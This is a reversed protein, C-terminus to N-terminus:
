RRREALHDALIMEQALLAHQAAHDLSAPEARYDEPPRRAGALGRHRPEKGLLGIKMELLERRDLRADGVQALHELRRAGLALKAFSRQEEDVLDVAEVPRM